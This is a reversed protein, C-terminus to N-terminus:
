LNMYHMLMQYNHQMDDEQQNVSFVETVTYDYRKFTAILATSDSQNVKITVRLQLGELNQVSMNLIACNNSECIRAIESASYNRTEMELSFVSGETRIGQHDALFAFLESSTVVGQYHHHEDIVPIVSLNHDRVLKVAEYPHRTGMVAPRFKLFEALGLPEEPTDWDLLDDESVLAIYSDRQTLPLHFVRFEDMLRLAKEGSDEMSLVPFENSILEKITM